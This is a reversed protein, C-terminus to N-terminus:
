RERGGDDGDKRTLKDQDKNKINEFAKALADRRRQDTDSLGEQKKQNKLQRKLDRINEETLTRAEEREFERHQLLADEQQRNSQIMEDIDKLAARRRQGIDALPQRYAQKLNDVTQQRAQHYSKSLKQRALRHAEIQARREQLQRKKLSKSLLRALRSLVNRHKRRLRRRETEHLEQAVCRQKSFQKQVKKLAKSKRDKLEAYLARKADNYPASVDRRQNKLKRRAHALRRDLKRDEAMQQKEFLAWAATEPNDSRAAQALNYDIIETQYERRTRGQDIVPYDIVRGSGNIVVKSDPRGYNADVHQARPGIHITPVRDIGQEKLTRRDIREEHGAQELAGNAVSEWRERVWDVANPGPLGAARRDRESDSLRLIRKGTEIDRDVVAIHVHPNHEDKGTQHIAAYWPVRSGGCLDAMLAEVLAARQMDDLERPLALRLKSIVRANKRMGREQHNMWLQADESDFPMDEALIVPYANDRSIYRIHAAATGPLHTTKGISSVNCSYIAM